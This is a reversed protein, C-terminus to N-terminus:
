PSIRRGLGAKLLSKEQEAYLDCIGPIDLGCRQDIELCKYNSQIDTCKRKTGDTLDGTAPDCQPSCFAPYPLPADYRGNGDTDLFVANTLGVPFVPFYDPIRAPPPFLSAAPIGKIQTFALAAIRSLAMEGFPVDLYVPRMLNRTDTGLAVVLFWSDRDPVDLAVTQDFDVIRKPDVTLDKSWALLGNRYIEIRDVGFWSTTQVRIKAQVQGGKSAKVVGGPGVGAVDVTIFPGYSPAVQGARLNKSIELPNVDGPEDTGSRIYNRPLGPELKTSHSDSGGVLTKVFGHELYRFHDELVGPTRGCPRDMDAAKVVDALPKDVKKEDFKCVTELTALMTAAKVADTSTPENLWAAQEEPTRRLMEGVLEQALALRYRHRCTALDDEAPCTTLNELGRDALEPCAKTLAAAAETDSLQVGKADFGARDVRYLCRSYIQVERVTPTRILEFRKANFVEMADFDCAVTRLTTNSEELQPLARTLSFPNIGAQDAWGFFGDRPHAVISTPLGDGTAFGSRQLIGDIIQDSPKCYWDLSGHSPQDGPAYKLPFGIYHGIELTSVESGVVATLFRDIGLDQIFPLYNSLVDHDTAAVYDVGEAAITKVRDRLPMGSDFSPEAHLHFDSSIWGQTDVEHLLAADIVREEGESLDLTEDHIGFELGHSVVVQYRGPAVPVDFKGDMAFGVHQVGTGLRGQGFYPRRGGDRHLPQGKADLRVLTLKAPLQAGTADTTQVRVRAPTPLSPAVVYDGGAVVKLKLLDGTVVKHADMAVLLYDGPPLQAEFAGDEVEDVGPDADIANVIGNGGTKARLQQLVVDVDTWTKTTDPDQLVFVTANTAPTGTERWRVYGQVHGTVTGRHKLIIDTVSAIDGQGVALYREYELVASAECTADDGTGAQCNRTSTIFATAASAFLPVLVQPDGDAPSQKKTYYGYSVDGGAAAVFDFGLPHTFTDLNDYLADWVPKEEDFGPGPVFIDNQNGFFVFDGAGIGAKRPAGMLDGLIYGLVSQSGPPDSATPQVMPSVPSCACVQCGAADFALGTECTKTCAQLVPCGCTGTAPTVDKALDCVFGQRCQSDKKCTEGLGQGDGVGRPQPPLFLSTRMTVFSDGPRLLYDTRFDVGLRLGPFFFELQSQYAKLVGIAEFLFVGKGEVRVVADQGDSGDKLVSVQTGLPAPVLLNAFPFLESFRDRGSGPPFRADGDRRLDADVLSGGFLGPGWSRGTGLIAIRIKDNELVFDGVDAYAVPGGVLEYRSRAQAARLQNPAEPQCAGALTALVACLGLLTASKWLNSRDPRHM